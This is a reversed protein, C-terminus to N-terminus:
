AVKYKIAMEKVIATYIEILKKDEAIVDLYNLNDAKTKSGGNLLLRARMNELRRKLDCAGREQLAKYIEDKPKQYDTLKYCIKKVLTNTENRWSESPRIEVVDRIAQVEQKAEIGVQRAQVVEQKLTKMEQLSQILVDEICTPKNEKVRFYNEELQEYVEWAEDTDLIKAHRAAGRDTWLTLVSTFKMSPDNSINMVRKFEKLEEGSLQFYHKGEVFRDKNNSFNKNINNEEAGYAEALVKTTMIRQNKYEVPVLSNLIEDGKFKKNIKTIKLM